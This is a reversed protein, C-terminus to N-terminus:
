LSMISGSWLPLLARLLAPGTEARPQNRVETARAIIEGLYAIARAGLGLKSRSSVPEITKRVGGDDM